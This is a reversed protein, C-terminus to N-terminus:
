RSARVIAMRSPLYGDTSLLCSLLTLTFLLSSMSKKSRACKRRRGKRIKEEYFINQGNFAQSIAEVVVILRSEFL